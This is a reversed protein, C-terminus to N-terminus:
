KKTNFLIGIRLGATMSFPNDGARVLSYDYYDNNNEDNTAASYGLGVYYDLLFIDSFVFQKGFNLMLAGFSRSDRSINSNGNDRRNDYNYFGFSVEPRIYSGSLLHSYRTGRRFFLPKHFFKYSVGSYFGAPNIDRDDRGLGIFGLSIEISQGPYLNREYALQTHGFLPSLFNMKIANKKQGEYFDPNSFDDIYVETNGTAFEIKAIATKDVVYVVGDQDEFLVYKIEDVGVEIVKAEIKKKNKKHIIDQAQAMQLSFLSLLVIM